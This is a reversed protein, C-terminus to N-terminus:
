HTENNGTFIHGYLRFTGDEILHKATMVIARTKAIVCWFRRNVEMEPGLIPEFKASGHKM